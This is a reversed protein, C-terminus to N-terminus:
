RTLQSATRNMITKSFKKKQLKGGCIRLEMGMSPYGNGGSYM